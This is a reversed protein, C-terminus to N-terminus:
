TPTLFTFVKAVLRRLRWLGRRIIIFGDLWLWFEHYFYTGSSFTKIFKLYQWDMVLVMSIGKLFCQHHSLWTNWYVLWLPICSVAAQLVSTSIISSRQLVSLYRIELISWAQAAALTFTSVSVLCSISAFQNFLKRWYLTLEYLRKHFACIRTRSVAVIRIPWDNPNCLFMLFHLFNCPATLGIRPLGQTLMAAKNWRDDEDMFKHLRRKFSGM